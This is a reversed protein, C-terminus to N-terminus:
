QVRQRREGKHGSVPWIRACPLLPRRVARHGCLAKRFAARGPLRSEQNAAQLSQATSDCPLGDRWIGLSETGTIERTEGTRSGSLSSVVAGLQCLNAIRVVVSVLLMCTQSDNGINSKISPM